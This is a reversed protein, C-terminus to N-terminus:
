GDMKEKTVYRHVKVRAPVVVQGGAIEAYGDQVVEAVTGDRREKLIYPRCITHAMLVLADPTMMQAVTGRQIQDSVLRVPVGRDYLGGAGALSDRLAAVTQDPSCNEVLLRPKEGREDSAAPDHVEEADDIADVIREENHTTM